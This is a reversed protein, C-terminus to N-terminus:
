GFLGNLDQGFYECIEERTIDQHYMGLMEEMNSTQMVWSSPDEPVDKTNIVEMDETTTVLFCGAVYEASVGDTKYADQYGTLANLLPVVLGGIIWTGPKIVAAELTLNGFSDQNTMATQLDAGISAVSILKIDKGLAQEAEDIVTMMQPYSTTSSIVVNYNGTMLQASLGALYGDTNAVSGPYIYIPLSQSNEVQIASSSTVLDYTDETYTLDAMEAVGALVNLGTEIHQLNGNAAIGTTLLLGELESGEMVKELGQAYQEGIEANDTYAAGAFYDYELLEKEDEELPMQVSLYIGLEDCRDAIQFMDNCAFDIFGVAGQASCSELFDIEAAIGDVQESFIFDLNYQPGIYNELFSKYGNYEDNIQSFCVGIVAPEEEMWEDYTLQEAATSEAGGDTDGSACGTMAALMSASVLIAAAKKMLKLNKM